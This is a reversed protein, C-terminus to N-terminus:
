QAEWPFSSPLSLELACSKGAVQVTQGVSTKMVYGLYGSRGAKPHVLRAVDARYEGTVVIGALTGDEAVIRLFKPVTEKESDFVWGKIRVFEEQDTNPDSVTWVSDLAGQCASDSTVNAPAGMEEKLDRFPERGFMSVDTTTAWVAREMVRTPDPHVFLLHADDRVQLELALGALSRRILVGTDPRLAQRQSILVGGALLIAGLSATRVEGGHKNFVWLFRPSYLVFLAAWAMLAPTAYRSSFATGLGFTMRGGSTVFATLCVFGIFLILAMEIRHDQATTLRKIGEWCAAGMLCGGLLIYAYPPLPDGQFFQEFPSGLYALGYQVFGIPHSFLTDLLSPHHGPRHYDTLYMSFMCVAVVALIATRARGMRTLLAFVVLVPQVLLGNAMTGVSLIGFALGAWFWRDSKLEGGSTRSLCLLSILPLLQALFFQSQFGWTLNESQKWLSLWTLLAVGCLLLVGSSVRDANLWKLAQWLVLSATLVFVYNMVILFAGTGGLLDYEILFLLRSLVIRHENHQAFLQSWDGDHFKQVFGITGDWM